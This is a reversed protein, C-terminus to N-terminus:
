HLEWFRVELPHKTEAVCCLANANRGDLLGILGGQPGSGQIFAVIGRRGFLHYAVEGLGQELSIIEPTAFRESLWDALRNAGNFVRAGALPGASIRQSGPLPVGLSLLAFSTLLAGNGLRASQVDSGLEALLRTGGAEAYRRWANAFNAYSLNFM